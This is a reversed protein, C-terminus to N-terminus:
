PGAQDPEGEPEVAEVDGSAPPAGAVPGSDRRRGRRHALRLQIIRVSGVLLVLVAGALTAILLALALSIHGSQGFFEVEVKQSNEAIFVILVVLFVAAAVLLVWLQGARSHRVDTTTSDAPGM